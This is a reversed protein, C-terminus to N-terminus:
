RVKDDSEIPERFIVVENTKGILLTKHSRRSNNSTSSKNNHAETDHHSDEATGLKNSEGGERTIEAGAGVSPDSHHGPWPRLDPDLVRFQTWSFITM